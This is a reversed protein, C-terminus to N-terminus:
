PRPEEVLDAVLRWFDADESGDSRHQEAIERAKELAAARHQNLLLKAVAISEPSVAAPETQCVATKGKDRLLDSIADVLEKPRFPKRLFRDCQDATQKIPAYGSFCIIKIHPQLQRARGALEFGNIGPMCVDTLLLDYQEAQLMELASVGDVVESVAFAGADELMLAVTERVGPDDEALLVRAHAQSVCLRNPM